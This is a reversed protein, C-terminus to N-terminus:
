VLSVDVVLVELCGTRLLWGLPCLASPVAELVEWLVQNQTADNGHLEAFRVLAEQSPGIPLFLCVDWELEM